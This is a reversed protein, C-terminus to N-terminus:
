MLRRWVGARAGGGEFGGVCTGVVVVRASPLSFFVFSFVVNDVKKEQGLESVM